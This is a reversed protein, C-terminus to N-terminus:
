YRQGSPSSDLVERVLSTNIPRRETMAVTDLRAVIDRAAAFSRDLHLQLHRFAGPTPSLQRDQFHKLLVAHLLHDDPNEITIVTAASLRSKLDPLRIPWRNPPTQGTVLLAMGQARLHNHAHFLWEEAEHPLHEADEVILPAQPLPDATGIDRPARIIAGTQASFLRALHTKGSGAPGVLALKGDPWAAPATIMAYAARNADSVFFSERGMEIEVPWDFSLQEAM